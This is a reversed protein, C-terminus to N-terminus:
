IRYLVRYWAIDIVRVIHAIYDHVFTRVYNGSEKNYSQTVMAVYKKHDLKKTTKISFRLIIIWM